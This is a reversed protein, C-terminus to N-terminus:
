SRRARRVVATGIVAAGVAIGLGLTAPIAVKAAKRGTRFDRVEWNRRRAERRLAGDPNVAVAHGVLSLMPLDNASDSYATCRHLDLGQEAALVRIADAKAPGHLLDGVLRGTYAGNDIEAMTGLAPNYHFGVPVNHPEGDAGVTALRGLRQSGLYAIENPTFTM